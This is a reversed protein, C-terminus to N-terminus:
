ATLKARRGHNKIKKQHRVYFAYQICVACWREPTRTAKQKCYSFTLINQTNQLSCYCSIVRRCEASQFDINYECLAGYIWHHTDGFPLDKKASLYYSAGARTMFISLRCMIAPRPIIHSAGAGHNCRLPHCAKLLESSRKKETEQKTWLFQSQKATCIYVPLLM